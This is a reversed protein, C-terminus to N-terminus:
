AATRNNSADRGVLDRGVADIGLADALQEVLIDGCGAALDPEFDVVRLGEGIDLVARDCEPKLPHREIRFALLDIKAEGGGVRGVVLLDDGEELRLALAKEFVVQGLEDM